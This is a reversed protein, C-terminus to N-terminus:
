QSTGFRCPLDELGLHFEESVDYSSMAKATGLLVQVGHFM